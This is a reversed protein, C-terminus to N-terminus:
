VGFAFDVKTEYAFDVVSSAFDVVSSSCPTYSQIDDTDYPSIYERFQVAHHLDGLHVAQSHLEGLERHLALLLLLKPLPLNCAASKKCRTFKVQVYM